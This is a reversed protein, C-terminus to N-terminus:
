KTIRHRKPSRMMWQRCGSRPPIRSAYDTASRWWPWSRRQSKNRTFSVDELLSIIPLLMWSHRESSTRTKRTILQLIVPAWNANYIKGTAPGILRRSTSIPETGPLIHPPLRRYDSLSPWITHAWPRTHKGNPRPHDSLSFALSVDPSSPDDNGPLRTPTDTNLVAVSSISCRVVSEVGHFFRSRSSSPGPHILQSCNALHFIKRQATGGRAPTLRQFWRSKDRCWGGNHPAAGAMGRTRM